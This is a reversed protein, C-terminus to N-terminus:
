PPSYEDSDGLRVEEAHRPAEYLASKIVDSPAEEGGIAPIRRQAIVNGIRGKLKVWVTEDGQRDLARLSARGYDRLVHDLAQTFLDSDVDVGEGPQEAGSLRAYQLRIDEILREAIEDGHYHPNPRELRLDFSMVREVRARWENYGVTEALSTIDWIYQTGSSSLLAQLAGTFTSERVLGSRLQYAIAGTATLVGFPIVVGSPAIGRKFDQSEEDYFLTTLERENVFGIRGIYYDPQQEVIRALVWRRGYRTVTAGPKWSEFLARHLDESFLGELRARAYGITYTRPENRLEISGTV